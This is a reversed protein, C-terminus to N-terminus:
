SGASARCRRGLRSRGACCRAAPQESATGSAPGARARIHVMQMVQVARVRTQRSCAPCMAPAARLSSAPSWFCRGALTASRCLLCTLKAHDAAAECRMSTGGGGGGGQVCVRVPGEIGCSVLGATTDSITPLAESRGRCSQHQLLRASRQTFCGGSRPLYGAAACIRQNQKARQRWSGGQRSSRCSVSGYVHLASTPPHSRSLENAPWRRRGSSGRV